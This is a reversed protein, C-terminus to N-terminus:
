AQYGEPIRSLYAQNNFTTWDAFGGRRTYLTFAAQANINPDYLNVNQYEPHVNDGVNIQWLGLSPGKDPALSQDGMALPDGSSEALAIGAATVADNGMFGASEALALLDAFTLKKGTAGIVTSAGAPVAMVVLAGAAALALLSVTIAKDV